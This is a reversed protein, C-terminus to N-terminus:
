SSLQPTKNDTYAVMQDVYLDRAERLHADLGKIERLPRNLRGSREVVVGAAMSIGGFTMVIGSGFSAGTLLTILGGVFMGLTIYEIVEKQKQLTVRSPATEGYDIIAKLYNPFHTSAAARAKELAEDYAPYGDQQGQFLGDIIGELQASNAPASLPIGRRLLDKVNSYILREIGQIVGVVSPPAPTQPTATYYVPTSFVM